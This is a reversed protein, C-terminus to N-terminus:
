VTPEGHVEVEEPEVGEPKPEPLRGAWNLGGWYLATMSSLVGSWLGITRPSASQSAIGAGMMSLMMVSWVLSEITSFVRGRYEDSVRRLLQTMNLVSSVAV